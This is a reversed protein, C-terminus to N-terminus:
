EGQSKLEGRVLSGFATPEFAPPGPPAVLRPFDTWSWATWGLGLDRLQSALNSGFELDQETGGWEGVFIPVERHRGIAKHWDNQRRNAYIHTSYLINAADVRIGSLDFAWDIGGVMIIGEPKIERIAATLLTAWKSWGEATLQTEDSLAVSGDSGILNLPHPDDDLVNHPENLLDFVVATEDRYRAALTRWLTITQENPTPPVHNAARGQAPDITTGYVTEVDLWQLDLITYAGLEAAWAIVQDLAALYQEASHVGRGNLCWDQNFPIRLINAQWGTVIERIEDQTIRAAALFGDANPESYELGSRNIGRLLVPNMQDARLIRNGTTTLAPLGHSLEGNM